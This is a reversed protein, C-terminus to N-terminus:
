YDGGNVEEARGTVRAVEGVEAKPVFGLFGEGGFRVWPNRPQRAFDRQNCKKNAGPSSVKGAPTVGTKTKPAGRV